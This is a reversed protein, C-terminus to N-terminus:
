IKGDSSTFNLPTVHIPGIKKETYLADYLVAAGPFTRSFYIVELEAIVSGRRFVICHKIITDKTNPFCHSILNELVNSRELSLNLFARKM